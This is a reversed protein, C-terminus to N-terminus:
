PRRQHTKPPVEELFRAISELTQRDRHVTCHNVDGILEVSLETRLQECLRASASLPVQRDGAALIVLTKQDVRRALEMCEFRDTLMWSFPMTIPNSRLVGMLSDMPSILVLGECRRMAAVYVAVCSGLSRGAIVVREGRARVQDFLELADAKIAHEGANGESLGFGRYNATVVSWGAAYSSIDIAWETNERRGGFYILTGKPHGGAFSETLDLKAGDRAQIFSKRVLYTGAASGPQAKKVRSPRTFILRRQFAALVVAVAAYTGLTGVAVQVLLEM